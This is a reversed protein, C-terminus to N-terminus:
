LPKGALTSAAWSCSSFRPRPFGPWAWPRSGWAESSSGPTWPGPEFSLRSHSLQPPTQHRGQREAARQVHLDHHFVGRGPLHPDHLGYLGASLPRKGGVARLFLASVLYGGRKAAPGSGSGMAIAQCALEEAKQKDGKGLPPASSRPPAPPWAAAAPPSSSFCPFPCRCRPWPRPPSSGRTTPTWWMSCPTFSIAWAQGPHRHEQTLKPIPDNILDPEKPMALRHLPEFFRPEAAQFLLSGRRLCRPIM